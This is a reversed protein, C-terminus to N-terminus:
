MPRTLHRWRKISGPPHHTFATCKNNIFLLCV